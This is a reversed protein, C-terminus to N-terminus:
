PRSAAPTAETEEEEVATRTVKPIQSVVWLCLRFGEPVDVSGLAGFAVRAHPSLPLPAAAADNTEGGDRPEQRPASERRASTAGDMGHSGGGRGGDGGAAARRAAGRGDSDDPAPSPLPRKQAPM